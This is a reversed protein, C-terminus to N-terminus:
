KKKKGGAAAGAASSGSVAAEAKRKAAAAAVAAGKAVPLKHSGGTTEEPSYSPWKSGEALRAKAEENMELLIFSAGIGCAVSIAHMGAMTDVYKPKSSSKVDPGFGLEGTTPSPGWAVVSDDAAALTSTSGCSISRVSMGAMDGVYAPRMTAEGNMKTIGFFYVLGGLRTKAYTISAGCTISSIRQLSCFLSLLPALTTLYSSHLSFRCLCLWPEARM